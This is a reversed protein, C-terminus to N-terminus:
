TCGRGGLEEDLYALLKRDRHPGAGDMQYRVVVRKGSRAGLQQALADLREMEDAFFETLHYKPLKVTGKYSGTIEMGQFYEKGKERLRNSLRKPYTYSGDAAYVRKYTDQEAPVMRGARQLGVLVANGGAAIDNDTPIFGTSAIALTKGIHSKHQVGHVLPEVGMFPVSKNNKRVVIEYCWKEDMQVLVLQVGVFAKASEWFV